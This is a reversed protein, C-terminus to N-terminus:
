AVGEVGILILSLSLLMVVVWGPGEGAKWPGSFTM